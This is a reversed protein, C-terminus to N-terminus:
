KPKREPRLAQHLGGQAGRKAEGKEKKDKTHRHKDPHTHDIETSTHMHKDPHTDPQSQVPVTGLLLGEGLGGLLPSIVESLLLNLLVQIDHLLVACDDTDNGVGLYSKPLESSRPVMFIVKNYILNRTINPYVFFLSILQSWCFKRTVM